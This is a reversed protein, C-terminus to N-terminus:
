LYIDQEYENYNIIKTEIRKKRYAAYIRLGNHIFVGAVSLIILWKGVFDLVLNRDRGPLYFGGLKALRGNERTHCEACSVSKERPAVMHNIPWYM